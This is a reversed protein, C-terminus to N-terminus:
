DIGLEKILRSLYSRQVALIKAAKTRNGQTSRLTNGIFSQRFMDTANKLTAGVNVDVPSKTSEFDFSDTTLEDGDELVIAREM